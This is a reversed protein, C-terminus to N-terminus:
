VVPPNPIAALSNPTVLPYVPEASSLHTHIHPHSSGHSGHFDLLYSTVYFCVLCHTISAAAFVVAATTTATGLSPISYQIHQTLLPRQLNRFHSSAWTCAPLTTIHTDPASPSLPHSRFLNQYNNLGLAM